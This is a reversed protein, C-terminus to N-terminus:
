QRAAYRSNETRGGKPAYTPLDSFTSRKQSGRDGGKATPPQLATGVVSFLMWPIITAVLYADTATTAGFVGALATERFFGLVKSLISAVTIIGAAKFLQEKKMSGKGVKFRNLLLM